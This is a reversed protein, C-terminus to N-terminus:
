APRLKACSLGLKNITKKGLEAGAGVGALSPQTPIIGLQDTWRGAPRGGVGCSYYNQTVFLLRAPVKTFLYHFLLYFSKM